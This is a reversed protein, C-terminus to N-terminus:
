EMLEAFGKVLDLIYPYTQGSPYIRYPVCREPSNASAKTM